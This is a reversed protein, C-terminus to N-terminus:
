PQNVGQVLYSRKEGAFVTANDIGQIPSSPKGIAILTDTLCEDAVWKADEQKMLEYDLNETALCGNLGLTLAAVFGIKKYLKPM